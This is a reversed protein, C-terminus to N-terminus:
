QKLLTLILVLGSYHSAVLSELEAFKGAFISDDRNAGQQGWSYFIDMDPRTTKWIAVQTVSVWDTSTHNGYGYGYYALLEGKDYQAATLNQAGSYDEYYNFQINSWRSNIGNTAYLLSNSRYQISNFYSSKAMDKM